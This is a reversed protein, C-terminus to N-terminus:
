WLTGDNKYPGYILRGDKALGITTLKKYQPHKDFFSLAFKLKDENCAPNMNCFDINTKMLGPPLMCPSITRYYYVGDETNSGLCEDLGIDDFVSGSSPFIADEGSASNANYIPVGNLTVGIM